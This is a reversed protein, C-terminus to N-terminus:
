PISTGVARLFVEGPLWVLLFLFGALAQLFGSFLSSAAGKFVCLLASTDELRCTAQLSQEFQPEFLPLSPGAPSQLVKGAGGRM